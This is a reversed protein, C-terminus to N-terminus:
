EASRIKRVFRAGAINLLLTIFFLLLGVFFLSPFTVDSGRVQDSGVALATMAGTM